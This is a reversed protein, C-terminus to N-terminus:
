LSTLLLFLKSDCNCNKRKHSALKRKAWHCDKGCSICQGYTNGKKQIPNTLYDGIHFPLGEISSVKDEIINHEM